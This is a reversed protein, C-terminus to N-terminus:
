DRFCFINLQVDYPPKQNMRSFPTPYSPNAELIYFHFGNQTILDLIEVFEKNHSFSGHYEIFLYEVNSLKESIDKLVLYEAGEIDLKLFDINQDLLKKLRIAKTKITGSSNDIDIKSSMTGTGAFSLETDDIWVAENNLIVDKLNFSEVNKSLLEYNKPDPEFAVIRAGPFKMKTYIVSFGIHAGCDIVLPTASKFPIKYFENIFIEDLAHLVENGTNFYCTHGLIEVQGITGSRAHRLKKVQTWNLGFSKYPNNFITKWKNQIDKTLKNIM